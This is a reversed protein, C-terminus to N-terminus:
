SCYAFLIFLQLCPRSGQNDPYGCGVKFNGPTQSENWSRSWSGAIHDRPPLLPPELLQTGTMWKPSRSQAELVWSPGEANYPCSLLSVAPPAGAETGEDGKVEAEPLFFFSTFCGMHMHTHTDTHTYLSFM